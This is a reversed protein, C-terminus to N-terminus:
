SLPGNVDHLDYQVRDHLALLYARMEPSLPARQKEPLWFVVIWYALVLLYVVMGAYSLTVFKRDWGLAARAFDQLLAVCAWVTIGAGLAVVYSRRQLGLRNAAASMALFLECILLSTFVETRADWLALGRSQTPGLQLALVAAVVLGLGGWLLFSRRAERVWRGTPRLVDRAIEYIVAVQYAYNGFATIWYALFYAHRSGKSSVVVLLITTLAEYVVFSTFVPFDRWRKRFVLVFTLAAHGLLSAAWLVKDLTSLTM